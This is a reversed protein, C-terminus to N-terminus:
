YNYIYWVINQMFRGFIILASMCRGMTLTIILINIIPKSIYGLSFNGITSYNSWGSLNKSKILLCSTFYNLIFIFIFIIISPLFGLNMFLYPLGLISSGMISKM